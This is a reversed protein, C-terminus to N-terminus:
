QSYKQIPYINNDAIGYLKNDINSVFYLTDPKINIETEIKGDLSLLYIKENTETQNKRFYIGEETIAIIGSKNIYDCIIEEDSNIELKNRILIENEPLDAPLIYYAYNNLIIMFDNLKIDAQSAFSFLKEKNSENFDMRSLYNIYIKEDTIINERDSTFMCYIYNKDAGFFNYINNSYINQSSEINSGDIDMKFITGYFQLPYIKNNFIFYQDIFIKSKHILEPESDQKIINLRHFGNENQFYLYENYINLNRGKYNTQSHYGTKKDIKIIDEGNSYYVYDINDCATGHLFIINNTNNQINNENKISCSNILILSILIQILIIHITLKKM